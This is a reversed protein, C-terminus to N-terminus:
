SWKTEKIGTIHNDMRALMFLLDSLRNIYALLQPNLPEQKHLSIIRREARRCIARAMHAQAAYPSGGPLIFHTLPPLKAELDDIVHELAAVAEENIAKVKGTKAPNALEAGINFLESQINTLLTKTEEASKLAYTLLLGLAANLEDVEGIAEIRMDDKSVRSGGYLSTEGRDGTKTYIHM